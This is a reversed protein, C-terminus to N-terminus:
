PETKSYREILWLVITTIWGIITLIFGWRLIKFDRKIRRNEESEKRNNRLYELGARKLSIHISEINHITYKIGASSGGLRNFNTSSRKAFGVDIVSELFKIIETDSSSYFKEKLFPIIDTEVEIGNPELYELLQITRTEIM